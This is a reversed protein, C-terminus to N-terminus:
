VGSNGRDTLRAREHTPGWKAFYPRMWAPLFPLAGNNTVIGDNDVLLEDLARQRRAAAVNPRVKPPPKM